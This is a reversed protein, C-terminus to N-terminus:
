KPPPIPHIAANCKPHGERKPFYELHPINQHIENNKLVMGQGLMPPDRRKTCCNKEADRLMFGELLQYRYKVYSNSGM